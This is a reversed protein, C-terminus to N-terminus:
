APVEECVVAVLARRVPTLAYLVTKGERRSIALGASRLTRLHHSVLNESRGTVRLDCRDAAM